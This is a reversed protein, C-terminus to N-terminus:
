NEGKLQRQKKFKIIAIVTQLVSAAILLVIPLIGVIILGSSSPLWRTAVFSLVKSFDISNYCAQYLSSFSFVKPLLVVTVIATYVLFIIPVIFNSLYFTKRNAQNYIAFLAFVVFGALAFYLVNMNFTNFAAATDAYVFGDVKVYGFEAYAELCYFPSGCILSYVFLLAVSILTGFYAIKQFKQINM